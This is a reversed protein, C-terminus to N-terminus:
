SAGGAPSAVWVPRALTGDDRVLAILRGEESCAAITGEAGSAPVPRGYSLAAGEEATLPRAPFVRSAADALSLLPFVLGASHDWPEDRAPLTHADAVSFPGVEHRRLASLHGGVGLAEGVDRALARVYTGSSCSVWVDVAVGPNGQWPQERVESRRTFESVTVWRADLHVDEGARVRAYSRQGNVKIASVASPVQQIVGTLRALESDIREATLAAVEAASAVTSVEGMADDTVTAAGLRITASYSKPLGVLHTLLKTGRNVGVILLGTAMPDLTGAHGVRRTGFMRRVRAVVDHSTWAEPKDVLVIGEPASSATSM